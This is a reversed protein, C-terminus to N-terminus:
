RNNGAALLQGTSTLLLSCDSGCVVAAVEVGEQGVSVPPPLTVRQPTPYCERSGLGLQGPMLLTCTPISTM